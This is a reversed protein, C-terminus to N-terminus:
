GQFASNSDYPIWWARGGLDDGPGRLRGRIRDPSTGALVQVVDNIVWPSLRYYQHGYHTEGNDGQTSAVGWCDISTVTNPLKGLDRPGWAGLRGYNNIVQSVALAADDRNKYVAVKKALKILPGLEASKSLGDDDEDAAMLVAGEFLTADREEVPILQIANRLAYNGMSHAVIHIPPRRGKMAALLTFLKGLSDAIANASKLAADRDATYGPLSLQGQSPWSFCFVEAARYAYAVQAARSMSDRFTSDFGPLLVVGYSRGLHAPVHADLEATAARDRAFSVIDDKAGAEARAIGADIPPDTHITGPQPEWGTDPLLSKQVVDISGTVYRKPNDDRYKSGFLDPGQVPNRNTAFRVHITPAM